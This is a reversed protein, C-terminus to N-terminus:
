KGKAGGEKAGGEAAATKAAEAAADGADGGDAGGDPKWWAYGADAHADNLFNMVALDVAQKKVDIKETAADIEAVNADLAAKVKPDASGAGIRLARATERYVVTAATAARWLGEGYRGGPGERRGLDKQVCASHDPSLEPLMKDIQAGEGLLMYTACAGPVASAVAKMMARADKEEDIKRGVLPAAEALRRAVALRLADPGAGKGSKMSSLWTDLNAIWDGHGDRAVVLAAAAVAAQNPSRSSFGNKSGFSTALEKLCGDDKPSAKAPEPLDACKAFGETAGAIAKADGSALADRLAEIKAYPEKKCGFLSLGAVLLLPTTRM